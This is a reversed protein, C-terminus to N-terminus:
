NPLETMQVAAPAATQGGGERLRKAEEIKEVLTQADEVCSLLKYSRCCCCLYGDGLLGGYITVGEGCIDCCTPFLGMEPIPQCLGARGAKKAIRKDYFVGQVNDAIICCCCNYLCSPSLDPGPYNWELHNELVQIYTSQYVSDAKCYMCSTPNCIGYVKLWTKYKESIKARYVIRMRNEEMTNLMPRTSTNTAPNSM